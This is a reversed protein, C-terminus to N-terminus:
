CTKAAFHIERYLGPPELVEYYSEGACSACLTSSGRIVERGNIIEERCLDCEAKRGPKSVIEALPTTLRVTQVHFLLSAPIVQYGLLMAEWRNRAEPAYSWALSRTEPRPVLRIASESCTVVFTAAVKGFDRIRLTRGGVHCGTAAILGDVACGDTEAIVLLGKGKHPLDLSLLEAAYLGMRAGLVQRPCLHKHRSSSEELIEALCRM